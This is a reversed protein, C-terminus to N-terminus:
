LIYAQNRLFFISIYTAYPSLSLSALYAVPPYNTAISVWKCDIIGRLRASSRLKDSLTMWSQCVM